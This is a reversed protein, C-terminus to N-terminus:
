EMVWNMAKLRDRREFSKVKAPVILDKMEMSKQTLKDDSVVALKDIDKSHSFHFEIAKLFGRVSIGDDSEDELYICIPTVVKIRNKVESLIEEMKEQDIETKVLYGVVNQSFAFSKKM